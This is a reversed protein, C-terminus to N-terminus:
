QIIVCHSVARGSERTCAYTKGADRERGKRREEKRKAGKGKRRTIEDEREGDKAERDAAQENTAQLVGRIFNGDTREDRNM